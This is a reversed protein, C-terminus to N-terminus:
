KREGKKPNKDNGNQLIGQLYADAFYDYMNDDFGTRLPGGTFPDTMLYAIFLGLIALSFLPFPKLGFRADM